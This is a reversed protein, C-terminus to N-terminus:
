EYQMLDSIIEETTVVDGFFMKINMLSIEHFIKNVTANADSVFIVKYNLMMADRATSECCVNTGVGTIILIDRREKDLFNKLESSGPIFASYRSKPLQIDLERDLNLEYYIETEPGMLSLAEPPNARKPDVPSKPQFLPWLGPDSKPNINMRLWVVPIKKQRCADAIRNINKIIKRANQIEICGTPSCFANQMDVIILVTKNPDIKFLRQPRGMLLLTNEVDKWLNKVLEDSYHEKEVLSYNNLILFFILSLIVVIIGIVYFGIIKLRFNLNRM